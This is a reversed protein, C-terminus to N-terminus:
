THTVINMRKGEELETDLVFEGKNLESIKRALEKGYHLGVWDIDEASLNFWIRNQVNTRIADLVLPEFQGTFQNALTINIHLSEALAIIEALYPMQFMQAEDIYIYIDKRNNFLEQAAVYIKQLISTGYTSVKEPGIKAVEFDVVLVQHARILNKLEDKSPLGLVNRVHQANLYVLRDSNTELIKPTLSEDQSGFPDFFIVCRGAAIDELAMRRLLRSKGTGTSGLLWLGKSRNQELLGMPIKTQGDKVEGVVKVDQKNQIVWKHLLKSDM